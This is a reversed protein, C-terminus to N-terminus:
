WCSDRWSSHVDWGEWRKSRSPASESGGRVNDVWVRRTMKTRTQRPARFSAGPEVPEAGHPLALFCARNRGSRPRRALSVRGQHSLARLRGRDHRAGRRDAAALTDVGVPGGGFKDIIALLLARDMKDFGRADVELLALADTPSPTRSARRRGAGPRLRARPAAAPQRHAAHRALPARDRRRRRRRAAGRPHAASRRLIAGLEDARTSTSGSADVGFRDRLPSPSCGPAPRRASWRSAAQARAQDVAGVAGARDIMDLQFDEMAPYLIEEVVRNLRHIEDIFLVDGASSTPSCRRSTARASSCRGRRAASASAWRTPSSTPSRPRASGPRGASCCTISCTAAARAGGRDRGAPQGQGAAQGVYSRSRGPPPAVVDLVVEEDAADLPDVVRENMDALRRLAARILDALARTGAAEARAVAREAEPQKYGLNVLASVRKPPRRRRDSRARRPRRTSQQLVASRRASSCSWSREAHKKGIGPVAVCGPARRRRRDRRELEPTAPMGSLVALAIRPGIRRRGAAAPLFLAREAADVFGFLELADERVHPTSTSTWRPARIPRASLVLEALRLRQYGSAASTSSSAAGAGERAPARALRAIMAALVRRRAPVRREARSSRRRAAPAPMSTVSRSRRARRRCGAVLRETVRLERVIARAGTEKEARGRAPSRSSSPRPRTSPSRSAGGVAAALSRSAACRASAFRARVNRASSTRSSRSCTPVGPAASSPSRAAHDRRAEGRADIARIRTVAGHALHAVRGDM